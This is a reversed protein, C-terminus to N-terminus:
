IPERVQNCVISYFAQIGCASCQERCDSTTQLEKSLIFENFLYEKNVGVNIHDWPFIENEERSRYIYDGPDISNEKFADVWKSFQFQDHWADFKAGNKWASEIVNALRRDGRSLVAELYTTNYDSWDIKLGTKRLKDLLIQYKQEVIEKQDLASWQFATHPKPILTNISIHIKGKGKLIKKCISNVKLCIEAIKDVDDFTEGPFGIMFYLKLNRWGMRFIDGVTQYLDEDSIPKNISNRIKESAAEPAITFNGKRKGKMTDMLDDDFTEVRLSPLSFEFTLDRSLKNIELLLSKIQSYDSTSLSLLSVEDYGTNKVASKVSDLIEEVPRERVPRTVMGAQCFRCGRSCGRMIEVVVRDHVTRINPVLFKSVPPPLKKVFRKKITKKEPNTINIFEKITGNTKFSVGFQRPIYIGSIEGLHDIMADRDIGAKKNIKLCDIVDHIIEEGEGIVFADIFSHMPEPNFCAHGGAIIIPDEPKRNVSHIPIQALNLMNIVNTYLTEYPISFGLIDFQKVSTKSELTFLPIDSQQLLEDMDTWPAYLREALADERSNIEEYLIALGLNPLGIDYIDPFALAIKIIQPHWEKKIQNFEGGTYRGPKKINILNQYLFQDIALKSQM